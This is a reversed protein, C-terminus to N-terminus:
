GLLSIGVTVALNLLLQMSTHLRFDLGLSSLYRASLATRLHSDFTTVRNPNRLKTISKFFSAGTKWSIILMGLVLRVKYVRNERAKLLNCRIALYESQIM